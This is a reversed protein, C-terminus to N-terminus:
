PPSRRHPVLANRRFLARSTSPFENTNPQRARTGVAKHDPGGSIRSKRMLAVDKAPINCAWGRSSALHRL